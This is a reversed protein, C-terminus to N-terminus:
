ERVLQISVRRNIARGKETANSAVPQRKGFYKVVLKDVPVGNEVLYDRVEVARRESLENNLAHNGINDTHGEIIARTVSPDRRLYAIVGDLQKKSYTNLVSQNSSFHLTTNKVKNFEYPILQATCIRFKELGERFRVTSLVVSVDDKGDGWDKFHFVPTMGQELEHLIRLSLDRQFLFPTKGKQYSVEGLDQSATAHKWAPAISRISAKGDRIPAQDVRFRFAMQQGADQYFEAQGFPVVVHQLTCQLPSSSVAWRSAELSAEYHLTGAGAFRALMLLCTLVIIKKIFNPRM